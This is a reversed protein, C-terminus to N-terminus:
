CTWETSISIKKWLWLYRRWQCCCVVSDLHQTTVWVNKNDDLLPDLTLRNDISDGGWESSLYYDLKYFEYQRPKNKSHNRSIFVFIVIKIHKIPRQWTFHHWIFCPHRLPASRHRWVRSIIVDYTIRILCNRFYQLRTFILSYLNYHQSIQNKTGWHLLGIM